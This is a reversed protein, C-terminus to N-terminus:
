FTARELCIHTAKDKRKVLSFNAAYLGQTAEVSEGECPLRPCSVLMGGQWLEGERGGKVVPFAVRACGAKAVKLVQKGYGLRV